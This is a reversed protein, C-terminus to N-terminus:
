PSCQPSHFQRVLLSSSAVLNEGMVRSQNAYDDNLSLSATNSPSLSLQFLAQIQREYEELASLSYTATSMIFYPLPQPLALRRPLNIPALSKPVLLQSVVSIYVRRVPRYVVGFSATHWESCRSARRTVTVPLPRTAGNAM